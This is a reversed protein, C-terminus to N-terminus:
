LAMLEQRHEEVMTNCREYPKVWNNFYEEETLDKRHIDKRYGEKRLEKARAEAMESTAFAEVHKGSKPSYSHVEFPTKYNKVSMVLQLGYFWENKIDMVTFDKEMKKSKSNFLHVISISKLERASVEKAYNEADIYKEFRKM